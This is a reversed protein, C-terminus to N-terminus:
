IQVKYKVTNNKFEVPMANIFKAIRHMINNGNNVKFVITRSYMKLQKFMEILVQMSYKRESSTIYLNSIYLSIDQINFCVFGITEANENKLILCNGKIIDYHFYLTNVFPHITDENFNKKDKESMNNILNIITDLDLFTSYQIM